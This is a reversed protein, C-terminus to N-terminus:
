AAIAMVPIVLRSEMEIPVPLSRGEWALATRVILNLDDYRPQWGLKARIKDANAIVCAPDGERRPTEIVPFDKGVQQRVTEIVERVSYGNGYGCNFTDSDGGDELYDLADLHASALDDVHIYDRIGTGDPTDFDTGFISVSPRKGLAADCTMKLLHTAGAYRQGLRGSVDAGAVNFYRLIVHKLNAAKSYDRIACESMLKSMGYPNLPQTPTTEKVPMEMPQGYVAATSSFVFKNVNFEQCVQLLQITNATNNSYYKLPNAVSEPVSISAAFHVVADFDYKRFTEALRSRDELSGIVLEGYSVADSFGTSLNDYAVVNYGAEGLQKVAHSGIYGAGGTVLVNKSMAVVSVGISFIPSLPQFYRSHKFKRDVLKVTVV